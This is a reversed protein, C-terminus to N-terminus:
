FRLQVGGVAGHNGIRFTPRVASKKTTNGSGRIIYHYVLLTAGSVVFAGGASYGVLAADFQNGAEEELDALEEESNGPQSLDYSTVENDTQQHLAHFLIGTGVGLVGVGAAGWGIAPFAGAGGSASPEPRTPTEVAETTEEATQKKSLSVAVESTSGRTADVTTSATTYGSKRVIVEVEGSGEYEHSL